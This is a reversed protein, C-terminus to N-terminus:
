TIHTYLPVTKEMQRQATRLCRMVSVCFRLASLSKFTWRRLGGLQCSTGNALLKVLQGKGIQGWISGVMPSDKEGKRTMQSTLAISDMGSWVWTYIDEWTALFCNSLNRFCLSNLTEEVKGWEQRLMSKKRRTKGMQGRGITMYKCGWILTTLDRTYTWLTRKWVWLPLM